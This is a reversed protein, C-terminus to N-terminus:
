NTIKQYESTILKHLNCREEEYEYLSGITWKNLYINNDKLLKYYKEVIGNKLFFDIKEVDHGTGCFLNIDSRINNNVIDNFFEWEAGEINIKVINFSEKLNINMDKIWNSFTVSKVEEYKQEDVDRKSSHISHGVSFTHRRCYYIKKTENHVDSIIYNYIHTNKDEHKLCFKTFTLPAGEFGYIEYDDTITPLFEKMDILEKCKHTGLDFYRIKM